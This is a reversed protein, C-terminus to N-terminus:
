SISCGELDFAARSGGRPKLEEKRDKLILHRGDIHFTEELLQQVRVATFGGSQLMLPPRGPICVAHVAQGVRVSSWLIEDTISQVCPPFGSFTLGVVKKLEHQYLTEGRKPPTDTLVLTRPVNQHQLLLTRLVNADFVGLIELGPLVLRSFYYGVLRQHTEHIVRSVRPPDQDFSFGSSVHLPLPVKVQTEVTKIGPLEATIPVAHVLPIASEANHHKM